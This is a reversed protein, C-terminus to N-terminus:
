RQPVQDIKSLDNEEMEFDQAEFNEKIRELHASKPIAIMGRAITWNLIIQSPSKGYKKSLEEIIPLELDGKKLSSYATISINKAACFDRLEKQNLSPRLEVQDNVIEVGAELAEQTLKADFNSIGIARILGRKKLEDMAKLTEEVPVYAKPWHVLLLDIYDVGLEKLFREGSAIVDDHAHKDNWVKTTLFFDERKVGSQKIGKAVELHNGYIDATDIAKYGLRLAYEVAPACEPGTLQWTGLGMTPMSVDKTLSITKQM